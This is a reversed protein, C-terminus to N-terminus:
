AATFVKRENRDQLPRANPGDDARLLKTTESRAVSQVAKLVFWHVGETAPPTTLSGSYFYYDLSAPLFDAARFASEPKETKDTNDPLRSEMRAFTPDHEGEAYLLALVAVNGAADKHVFHAEMKYAQGELHHESPVHFHLHDLAYRKNGVELRGGPEFHVQIQHGNNIIERAAVDYALRLPELKTPTFDTLNIPSQWLGEDCISAIEGWNEPGTGGSYSWDDDTRFASNNM